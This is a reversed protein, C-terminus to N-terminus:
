VGNKPNSILEVRKYQTEAESFLSSIKKRIIERTDRTKLIYFFLVFFFAM